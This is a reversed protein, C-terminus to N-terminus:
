SALGSRLRLAARIEAIVEAPRDTLDQWTFHLVLYGATVLRNERRRDAVFAAQSRHARWGDVEVVVRAQEFRLDVVGILGQEDLVPANATWGSIGAARLLDHMRFEAHSVAGGAVLDAIRRLQATGYWRPRSGIAALLGEHDLIRGNTVWAWLDLAPGFDYAALCDVATRAPTTLRLGCAGDQIESEALRLLHTRIRRGAASHTGIIVHCYPAAEDPNPDPFGHLGAATRHSIVIGRMSLRAAMALQFPTWRPRPEALARGAVYVWRRAAIRRRVTRATWGERRAQEATFMGGQRLAIKPVTPTTSASM